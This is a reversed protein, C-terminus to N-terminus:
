RSPFTKTGGDPKLEKFPLDFHFPSIPLRGVHKSNEDYADLDGYEGVSGFVGYVEAYFNAAITTRLIKIQDPAEAVEGAFNDAGGETLDACASNAGVFFGRERMSNAMNQPAAEVLIGPSSATLHPSFTVFRADNDPEPDSSDVKSEVETLRRAQLQVDTEAETSFTPQFEPSCSLVSYIVVSGTDDHVTMVIHEDRLFISEIFKTGRISKVISPQGLEQRIRDIGFGAHLNQLRGYEVNRWYLWNYAQPGLGVILVLASIISAAGVVARIGIQSIVSARQWRSWEHWPWSTVFPTPDPYNAEEEEPTPPPKRKSSM